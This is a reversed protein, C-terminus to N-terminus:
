LSAGIVEIWWNYDDTFLSDSDASEDNSFMYLDNYGNDADIENSLPLYDPFESSNDSITDITEDNKKNKEEVLREIKTRISQILQDKAKKSFVCYLHVFNQFFSLFESSYELGLRNLLVNKEGANTKKLERKKLLFISNESNQYSKYEIFTEILNLIDGARFKYDHLTTVFDQYKTIGLEKFFDIEHNLFNEM